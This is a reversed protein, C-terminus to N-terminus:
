EEDLIPKNQTLQTAEDYSIIFVSDPNASDLSIAYGARDYLDFAAKIKKFGITENFKNKVPYWLGILEERTM